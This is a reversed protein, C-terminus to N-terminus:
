VPDQKRKRADSKYMQWNSFAGNVVKPKAINTGLTTKTNANIANDKNIDTITLIPNEAGSKSLKRYWIEFQVIEQPNTKLATGDPNKDVASPFPFFGRVHYKPAIKNLNKKNALIDNVITVKQQTTTNLKAQLAVLEDDARKKDANSEFKTTTIIKNQKEISTSIQNIKSNLDNKENHLDRIKEAEVTQTLHANTQVVKFNDPNLVPKNPKVAFFNPIKKSVLDELVAGYDNVNNIYYDSFLQGTDDNLRLENTYFGVGTSWSNAELNNLEDVPKVFVVCYEDFGVSIRVTREPVLESYISLANLRVPVPEEGFVNELTVRIESNITSIEKIKYVTTSKVGAQNPNVNVLDGIKLTVDFTTGNPNSIDQYTLTDLVYWLKKNISDIQTGLISFNGSYKLRNPDLKFTDQDLLNSDVKNVLGNTVLWTNFETYDINSKGKYKQEFELLKAAGDITLEAVDDQPNYVTEFKVIYRQSLITKIDDRVKGTLDLSVSIKPNLFSDFIWNPDTKFVSVPSVDNINNPQKNIDATVIRKFANNAIQLSTPNGEIGALTKVMKTLQDLKQKFFGITTIQSSVEKGEADVTKATVYAENTNLAQDIKTLLEMTNQNNRVQQAYQDNFSNHKKNGM